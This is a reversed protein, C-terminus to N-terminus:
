EMTLVAKICKGEHSERFARNIEEFPNFKLLRDFPFRGDRCYEILKPIADGEVIGILSRAEGMLEQRIHFTVDGTAGLIVCTGMFRCGALAKKVFDPM